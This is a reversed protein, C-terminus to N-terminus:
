GLPSFAKVLDAESGYFRSVDLYHPCGDFKDPKYQGQGDGTYQWAWLESWGPPLEPAHGYQALWLNCRNLTANPKGDMLDKAYGGAYLEPAVGRSELWRDIFEACQDLSMDRNKDDEFDLALRKGLRTENAFSVQTYVVHGTGWFYAMIPLGIRDCEKVINPFEPDPFGNGTGCKAIIGKVGDAKLREFDIPLDEHNIDVVFQYEKKHPKVFFDHYDRLTAGLESETYFVKGDPDLGRIRQVERMEENVPLPQPQAPTSM